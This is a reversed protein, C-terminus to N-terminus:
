YEQNSLDVVYPKLNCSNNKSRHYHERKKRKIEENNLLRYKNVSQLIRKRNKLYYQQAYDAAKPPRKPVLGTKYAHKINEGRTVLELNGLSNNRKNGDRHNVCLTHGQWFYEAIIKHIRKQYNKGNKRLQVRLYGYKDIYISLQRKTNTNTVETVGTQLDYGVTYKNLIDWKIM